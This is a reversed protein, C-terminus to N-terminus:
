QYGLQRLSLYAMLGMGIKLAEEDIDFHPNHISATIGKEVNGTGLRYFCAPVQQGFYSFDEGTPRMELEVVKDDGLYDRAWNMANATLAEDNDVYPYGRKIHVDCDGGMSQAIGKAMQTIHEHAQNRWDEDYTRFTGEVHVEDPIVNTAGNAVVKGFSLVTPMIPKAKRSVVQQLASLTQVMIAVPDVLNNPLAGHGGKGKFTLYIEDCSAMYKGPKMGVKGVPLDHLVHQGFISHFPHKDLLGEQLMLNAGGPLKEEAPQFVLKITGGWEDRLDNLIIAAGLASSTHVDHGCAHMVGENTSKYPVDNAETIPLADIDARIATTADNPKKGIITAVIGTDVWGREFVIGEKALKDAIFHSTNHEHFSLEPHAHLHRRYDRIEEFYAQALNHIQEKLM